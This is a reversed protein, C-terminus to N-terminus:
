LDANVFALMGTPHSGDTENQLQWSRVVARRNSLEVRYLDTQIAINKEGSASAPAASTAGTSSAVAPQNPQTIPAAASSPAAPAHQAAASGPPPQPKPPNLFYWGVM